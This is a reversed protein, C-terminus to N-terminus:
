LPKWGESVIYWAGAEKRLLLTKLGKDSYRDSRYHQLFSVEADKGEEKIDIEANIVIVKITKYRESLLRKHKGWARKDMGGVEFGDSYCRLYEETEKNEWCTRWREIFSKIKEVEGKIDAQQKLAITRALPKEKSLLYGGRLRNWQERIIKFAEGEERLYLRKIGESKLLDSHYDQRFTVLDYGNHKFGQVGDITINIEDNRRNLNDKYQKWQEWNMGKSRFDKAYYSMYRSLEKNQWSNLWETIFTELRRKRKEAVEAPLYEIKELVIIPTRYLSLYDSIELLNKNNLAICGKSDNPALTKNTGHLWIGRGGKKQMRDFFNPYDLVFARMGYRPELQEDEFIRTFFYIGEPTKRDGRKKKDGSNEGTTCPFDKILKIEGAVFGYLFLRQTQKEVLIAYSDVLSDMKLLSSPINKEGGNHIEYGKAGQALGTFLFLFIVFCLFSSLITEKGGKEVSLYRLTNLM